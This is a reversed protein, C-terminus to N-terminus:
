RELKSLPHRERNSFGQSGGHVRALSAHLASKSSPLAHWLTCSEVSPQELCEIQLLQRAIRVGFRDVMWLELRSRIACM